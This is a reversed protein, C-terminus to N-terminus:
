KVILKEKEKNQQKKLRGLYGALQNRLKKSPMTRGLIKKNKEFKEGFDIDKKLLVNASKKITKSKIKGM